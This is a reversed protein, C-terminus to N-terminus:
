TAQAWELARMAGMSGGVVAYWVDIGLFDALAVEVSVQDRITIVPFRSGFPRGDGALSSPGTTGQCGGLVNPCVVFFRDMDLAKGAGIIGDWWGRTPHGPGADGAAHSDGTLAHLVLVANSRSANLIGWTEYAVTVEDLQGGGELAFGRGRDDLRALERGGPDDGPRWYAALQQDRVTRPKSARKWTLLSTM